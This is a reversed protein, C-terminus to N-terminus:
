KNDEEKDFDIEKKSFFREKFVFFLLVVIVLFIIIGFLILTNDEDKIEDPIETINSSISDYVIDYKGDGDLDISYKENEYKLESSFDDEFLYYIDYINDNDIDILYHSKNLYDLYLVDFENKSNSGIEIEIDDNLGDNDDDTDVSDPMMDEDYDEPYDSSNYPDHDYDVEDEDGWSDNDSDYMIKIAQEDDGTLGDDDTVMLSVTFNGPNTYVHNVTQTSGVTGDGFAWSYELIEGDNDYSEVGSFVISENVLGKTKMTIVAVPSNSTIVPPVVPPGDPPDPTDKSITLDIISTGPDFVLFQSTNIDNIYFYINKGVNDNDPDEVHYPPNYGFTGNSLITTTYSENDVIATVNGSTIIEGDDYSVTGKISHPFGPTPPTDVSAVAILSAYLIFLLFIVLLLRIRKKAKPMM